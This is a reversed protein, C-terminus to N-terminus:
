KSVEPADPLPCAKDITSMARNYFQKGTLVCSRRWGGFYRSEHRECNHCAACCTIERVEIKAKVKV